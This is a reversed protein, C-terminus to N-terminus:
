GGALKRIEPLTLRFVTWENMPKAGLSKYFRIAPENWNLVSWEMRGCEKKLAIGALESLLAKGIGQGRYQPLVFVDELYLTPKGTFTSYTFFYLAFGMYPPEDEHINEVLLAEFRSEEGFGHKRYLESTATVEDSLREYEALKKVLSFLHLIDDETAARIKYSRGESM